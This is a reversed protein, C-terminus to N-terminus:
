RFAENAASLTQRRERLDNSVARVKFLLGEDRIRSRLAQLDDRQLRDPARAVDVFVSELDDLMRVLALDGTDAATRRYLRGSSVLDDATTREFAIETEDAEPANMLEVLLMEAQELHPELAGVLVRERLPSPQATAVAPVPGAPERAPPVAPARAALVLGAVAAALGASPALRRWSWWPEPRAALEGSIRAWMVREFEAGPEPVPASEILHLTERLESWDEGCRSCSELHLRVREAAEPAVEGYLSLILDEHSPHWTMELVRGMPEMGCRTERAM